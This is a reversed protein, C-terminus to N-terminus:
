YNLNNHSNLKSYITKNYDSISLERDGNTATVNRIFTMPTDAILTGISGVNWMCLAPMGNLSVLNCDVIEIGKPNANVDTEAHIYLSGHKKDINSNYICEVNEYRQVQNNQLGAGIPTDCESYLKCNKITTYYKSNSNFPTDNHICYPRHNGELITEETYSVDALNNITLNAITCPGGINLAIGQKTSTCTCNIITHDRDEGILSIRNSGKDIAYYPSTESPEVNYVGNKIFITIPTIQTNFNSNVYDIASQIDTFQQGQGVYFIKNENQLLPIAIRALENFPYESTSYGVINQDTNLVVYDDHNTQIQRSIYMWKANIPMQYIYGTTGVRYTSLGGLIKNDADTVCCFSDSGPEKSCSYYLGYHVPIKMYYYSDNNNIVITSGVGGTALVFQGDHVEPVLNKYHIIGENDERLESRLDTIVLNDQSLETAQYPGGDEWSTTSTDYWYWHGDTSLVYIKTTDTMDGASSVAIPSSGPNGTDGKEGQKGNKINFTSTTGDSLTATIVNTGESESSTTTQEISEVSVGQEGTDGKDGKEAYLQWYETNTPLNGETSQLACYTSGQYTVVNLKEYQTQSDYEGMNKISVIGLNITQQEAM